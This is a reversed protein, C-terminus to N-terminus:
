APRRTRWLRSLRTLLGQLGDRAFAIILVLLIGFLALDIGPIMPFKRVVPARGALALGDKYNVTSHSVAVVVDGDMLDALGVEVYDTSQANDQKRIMVAKFRDKM